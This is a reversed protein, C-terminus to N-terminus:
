ELGIIRACVRILLSEIKEELNQQTKSPFDPSKTKLKNM